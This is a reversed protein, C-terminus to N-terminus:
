KAAVATSAATLDLTVEQGATVAVTKTVTTGAIDAKVTLSATTLPLVLVATHHM